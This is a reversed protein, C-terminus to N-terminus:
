YKAQGDNGVIIEKQKEISEKLALVIELSKKAENGNIYTEIVNRALNIVFDGDLKKEYQRSNQM